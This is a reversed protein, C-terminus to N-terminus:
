TENESVLEEPTDSIATIEFLQTNQYGEQQSFSYDTVVVSYINFLRLYDAVIELVESKALLDHLDRVEKYPYADSHDKVIAGRIRVEYDGDCIYEKVTGNRGQVATTVINKRMSVDVLVTELRLEGKPKRPFRIDAFLPTGLWTKPSADAGEGTIHATEEGQQQPYEEGRGATAQEGAFARYVVPKLGALGFSNLILQFKPM